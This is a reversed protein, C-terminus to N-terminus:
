QNKLKAQLWAMTDVTAPCAGEVPGRLPIVYVEDENEAFVGITVMSEETDVAYATDSLRRRHEAPFRGEILAPFAGRRIGAIRREEETDATPHVSFTILYVPM